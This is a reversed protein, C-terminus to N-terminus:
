NAAITSAGYLLLGISLPSYIVFEQEEEERIGRRFDEQFSRQQKTLSPDEAVTTKWKHFENYIKNFNLLILLSDSRPIRKMFILFLTLTWETNDIDPCRRLISEVKIDVRSSRLRRRRRSSGIQIKRKGLYYLSSEVRELNKSVGIGSKQIIWIRDGSVSREVRSKRNSYPNYRIVIGRVIIEGAM